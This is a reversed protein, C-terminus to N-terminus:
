QTADTDGNFICTFQLQVQYEQPSNYFNCVYSCKDTAYEVCHETILPVGAQLSM